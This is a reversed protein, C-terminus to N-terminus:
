LGWDDSIRRDVKFWWLVAIIVLGWNLLPTRFFEAIAEDWGHVDKGSGSALACLVALVASFVICMMEQGAGALHPRKKAAASASAAATHIIKRCKSKNM